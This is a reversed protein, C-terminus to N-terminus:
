KNILKRYEKINRLHESFTRAFIHGGKGDSVFYFYDNKEPYVAALIAKKGPNNIPGPPLGSFLYTNYPNNIKLDDYSLRRWKDKLIYQITPDAQLRMGVRLRNYYVGAIRPMEDYKNTEGNIISALTLKQHLTYRGQQIDQPAESALYRKMGMYLSDAAEKVTSREYIFYNDPLLYGEPSTVNDGVKKLFEPSKIYKMFEASDIALENKLRAAIAAVTSADFIKVERLFDAKGKVFYDILGFYSLGNPIHYRAAKLKKDAGSLKSAVKFYFESKIIGKERLNVAISGVSEGRTVEFFVPGKENYYNPTFFIYYLFALVVLFFAGTLILEKKSLLDKYAIKKQNSNM